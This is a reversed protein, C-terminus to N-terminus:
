LASGEGGDAPLVVNEEPLGGETMGDEPLGDEPLDPDEIAPPTEGGNILHEGEQDMTDKMIPADEILRLESQLPVGQNIPSIEQEALSPVTVNTPSPEPAPAAEIRGPSESQVPSATDRPREPSQISGNSPPFMGSGPPNAEVTLELSTSPDIVPAVSAPPIPTSAPALVPAPTVPELAPARSEPTRTVPTPPPSIPATPRAVPAPAPAVVVPSPTGSAPAEAEPTDAAEPAPTEEPSSGNRRNRNSGRPTTGNVPEQDDPDITEIPEDPGTDTQDIPLNETDPEVLPSEEPRTTAEAPASISDEVASDGSGESQPVEDELLDEETAAAAPPNASSAAPPQAIAGNADPENLYAEAASGEFELEATDALDTEALGDDSPSVPQVEAPPSTAPAPSSVAGESGTEVEPPSVPVPAPPAPRSFAPPNEIVRADNTFSGQKDIADRIEQRVADLADSGMSSDQLYNFGQALGSTQWFLESNFQYIQTIQGNEVVGIENARLAQRESGDRNFLVMPGDPNDTLAGVITTDTEPIYRVFLASGQIGTVANPTQITSRGRDPPIFLLVTGNTLQFNRTNPTFRFTAREGIRALSGDNFRLEARAARATRLADGISLFDAIRAERARENNPVLQVRNRLFDIRAWSLPQEDAIAPRPLLLGALGITASLVWLTRNRKPPQGTM